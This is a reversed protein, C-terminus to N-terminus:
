SQGSVFRRYDTLIALADSVAKRWVVVIVFAAAFALIFATILDDTVSAYVSAILVPLCAPLTWRHRLSFRVKGIVVVVLVSACYALVTAWACGKLGYRPILLYNAIINVVSAVIAILSSVFTASVASVYPAFGIHTPIAFIAGSMLIWFLVVAEDVEHGFVAPILYKLVLAATVSGLGGAFTLLPLLTEMYANVRDTRGTTRLTVFLPLVLSGALLAFQLMIGNVQYAVTYVGLDAKTLYQSIFIADLNNTTFLGILSYPILPVSFRLLKKITPGDFAFEWTFLKRIAFLGAVAMVAPVAIYTAIGTTSDLQRTVVLAALMFFILAREIALMIGQLRPLKAAQIAYQVHLWTATMLFHATVFWIAEPPLKLLRVVLPLWLIGSLLIIATNPVFVATRAWFSSTIMGTEVFEEVGFRALSVCTWNVFILVVQSGAMVAVIGGYGDTGLYSTVLWVSSFSFLAVAIQSAVLTSYNRLANRIDWGATQRESLILATQIEFNAAPPEPIM